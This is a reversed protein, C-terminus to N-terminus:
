KEACKEEMARPYCTGCLPVLNQSCNYYAMARGVFRGCNMCRIEHRKGISIGLPPVDILRKYNNM